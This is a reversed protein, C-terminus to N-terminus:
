QNFDNNDENMIQLESDLVPLEYENVLFHNHMRIDLSELTKSNNQHSYDNESGGEISLSISQFNMQYERSIHLRLDALTKNRRLMATHKETNMYSHTKEFSIGQKPLTQLSEFSYLNGFGFQEERLMLFTIAALGKKGIERDESVVMEKFKKFLNQTEREYLAEDVVGDRIDPRELLKTIIGCLQKQQAPFKNHIFLNWLRPFGELEEIPSNLIKVPKAKCNYNYYGQSYKVERQLLKGKHLNIKLFVFIVIMFLDSRDRSLFEDVNQAFFEEYQASDTVKRKSVFERLWDVLLSDQFNARLM